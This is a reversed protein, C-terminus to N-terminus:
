EPLSPAPGAVPARSEQPTLPTFPLPPLNKGKNLERNIELAIFSEEATMPKQNGLPPTQTRLERSPSRLRDSGSYAQLSSGASAYAPTPAAALNNGLLTVSKRNFSDNASARSIITPESTTTGANFSPISTTAPPSPFSATIPQVPAASASNGSSSKAVEFTINTEVAGNRIKVMNKEVDISLVEVAGDREGERLIPKRPTAAKGPEQEIIELLARKSSPGFMSTIGTLTVKALPAPPPPPPVDSRPPPPPKLGFSNREVIPQYPNDAAAALMKPGFSVLALGYLVSLM